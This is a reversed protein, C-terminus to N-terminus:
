FRLSIAKKQLVLIEYFPVKLIIRKISLESKIEYGQEVDFFKKVIEFIRKM